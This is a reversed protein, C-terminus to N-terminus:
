GVPRPRPGKPALGEETRGDSPYEEAKDGSQNLFPLVAVSNQQAAETANTGPAPSKKGGGGLLARVVLLVVVAVLFVITWRIALNGNSSANAALKWLATPQREGPAPTALPTSTREHAATSLARESDEKLKRLDATLERASGYRKEPEKELCKFIIHDIVPSFVPNELGLSAPPQNVINNITEAVTKGLFPRQGAMLEYLVVGLSFIDTRPDLERGLAQEPSMYQPTGILLGTKTHAASTNTASLADAAFWKALGFDLVKVQGQPNLMLNAPKIDRHVLGRAHAAELAEAAEIGLQIVERIKLRRQRLVEDLTQGEVYEMALFPRRDETEGTEHIVGIHPHSLGSAAKAETHFRKRQNPDKALEASMVKLAVPRDLQTDQALYVEGMGGSGM